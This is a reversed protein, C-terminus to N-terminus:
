WDFQPFLRRNREKRIAQWTGVTLYAARWEHLTLKRYRRELNAIYESAVYNCAERGRSNHPYLKGMIRHKAAEIADYRFTGLHSLKAYERHIKSAM